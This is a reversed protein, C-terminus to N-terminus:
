LTLFVNIFNSVFKKNTCNEQIKNNTQVINTPDIRNSNILRNMNPVFKLKYQETNYRIIRNIEDLIKLQIRNYILNIKTLNKNNRLVEIIISGSENKLQNDFFNLEKFITSKTLNRL